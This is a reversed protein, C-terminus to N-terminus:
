LSQGTDDARAHHKDARKDGFLQRQELHSRQANYFAKLFASAESKQVPEAYNIKKRIKDVIVELTASHRNHAAPTSHRVDARLVGELTQLEFAGYHDLHHPLFTFGEPKQYPAKVKDTALDRLLIPKPLHVVHTGAAMDGLRRRHTNFFPIALALLIWLFSILSTIPSSQNLSFVLTIPLFVEAEKMLNRLVIAHTSLTGGDHAVVKIAMWKKGLTQGNWILEAVVYYPIRIIFLLLMVVAEMSVPGILGTAFLFIWLCLAGISTILIDAIQASARVGLTAVPLHIPVGEPPLITGAAKMKEARRTRRAERRLKRRSPPKTM